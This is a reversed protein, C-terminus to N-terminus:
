RNIGVLQEIADAVRNAGHGDILRRGAASMVARSHVDDVLVALAEAIAAAELEGARGLRRAAGARVMGDVVSGKSNVALLAPVGLYALEWATTGSGAIAIDAAAMRCPLDKPNVHVRTNAPARSGLREPNGYGSGVVVDAQLASFRSDTLAEVTRGSLDDDDSGGFTVLLRRARSPVPGAAACQQLIESRLLVYSSGTLVTADAPVLGRYEEAKRGATQDVLLDVDHNRETTDDMAMVHAAWPRASREFESGRGYHDVVLLDAGSWRARMAALEGDGVGDLSLWEHSGERLEPVMQLSQLLGAFGVTWGRRSLAGALALCRRVHGAGIGPGADARVVARRVM